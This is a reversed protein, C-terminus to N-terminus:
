TLEHLSVVNQFKITCILHSGCLFLSSRDTVLSSFTDGGKKWDFRYTDGCISNMFMECFLVFTFNDIGKKCAM